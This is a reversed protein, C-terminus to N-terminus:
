TFIPQTQTQIAQDLNNCRACEGFLNSTNPMRPSRTRQCAVFGPLQLAKKSSLGFIHPLPFLLPLFGIQLGVLYDGFLVNVHRMCM